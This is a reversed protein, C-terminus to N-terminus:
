LDTEKYTLNTKGGHYDSILLWLLLAALVVAIVVATVTGQDYFLASGIQNVLFAMLYTPQPISAIM